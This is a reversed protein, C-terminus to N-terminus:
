FSEVRTPKGDLIFNIDYVFFEGATGGLDPVTEAYGTATFWPQAASPTTNGHPAFSINVTEGPNAWLVSHLSAAATDQFGSVACTFDLSDVYNGFGLTNVASSFTVNSVQGAYETGDVEFVISKGKIRAMDIEEKL